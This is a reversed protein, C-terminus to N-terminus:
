PNTALSIFSLASSGLVFNHKGDSANFYMVVPVGYQAVGTYTDKLFQTQNDSVALGESLIWIPQGLSQLPALAHDFVQAWTQGGFDFGDVGLIDVFSRGPYYQIAPPQGYRSDNDASYAIKVKPAIGRVIGVEYQFAAIASAVTDGPYGCIM